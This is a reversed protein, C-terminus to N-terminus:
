TRSKLTYTLRIILILHMDKESLLLRDKYIVQYVLENNKYAKNADMAKNNLYAGNLSDTDTHKGKCPGNIFGTDDKLSVVTNNEKQFKYNYPMKQCM